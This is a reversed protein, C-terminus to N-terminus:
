TCNDPAARAVRAVPTRSTASARRERRKGLNAAASAAAANNPPRSQNKAKGVGANASVVKKPPPLWSSEHLAIEEGFPLYMSVICHPPFRSSETRDSLRMVHDGFEIAM